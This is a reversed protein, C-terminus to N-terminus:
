RFHVTRLTSAAFPHFQVNKLVWQVTWKLGSEFKYTKYRAVTLSEICNTLAEQSLGQFIGRDICRYLKSLCVLVRRVTPYWMGHLDAPSTPGRSRPGDAPNLSVEVMKEEDNGGEGNATESKSQSLSKAIDEMMILKDPYALDGSSPAFGLIDTKIYINTRYVLREQVDELMQKVIIEFAEVLNLM